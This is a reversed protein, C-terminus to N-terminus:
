GGAGGAPRVAEGAWAWVAGAADRDPLLEGDCVCVHGALVATCEGSLEGAGAGCVPLLVDAAMSVRQVLDAGCVAATGVGAGTVDAGGSAADDGGAGVSVGLDAAHPEGAVPASHGGCVGGGYVAAGGVAGSVAEGGGDGAGAAAGAGRNYGACDRRDGHGDAPRDGDCAGAAGPPQVGGAAVGTAGGVAGSAVADARAPVAGSVGAAASLLAGGGVPELLAGDVVDGDEGSLLEAGDAASRGRRGM